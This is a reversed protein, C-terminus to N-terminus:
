WEAVFVNMPIKNKDLVIQRPFITYNNEAIERANFALGMSDLVDDTSVWKKLFRANFIEFERQIDQKCKRLLQLREQVGENHKKKFMLGEGKLRKFCLEPHGETFLIKYEPNQQLFVDLEEIKSCINWTQISLGKNLVERNIKNAEQYSSAYVAQRCPVGFVSSGFGKGLEKRILADCIREEDQSSVLGMPMDISIHKSSDILEKAESLSSFLYIKLEQQENLTTLLWGGRCGDIGTYYQKKAFM